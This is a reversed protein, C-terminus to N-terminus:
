ERPRCSGKESVKGGRITLEVNLDSDLVLLDADWGRAIRGKRKGMGLVTAPTLTAMTVAERLSVGALNVANKVAKDMTLTSGALWGKRRGVTYGTETVEVRDRGRRYTGPPLGTVFAADTILAVKEVGKCRVIPMLMAPHFHFGDMIVSGYLEEMCLFSGVVGPEVGLWGGEQEKRYPWDTTNGVHTVFSLGKKVSEVMCQYDAYSHSAAAVIGEGNLLRIVKGADELEPALTVMRIEGPAVKVWRRVERVDPRRLFGAPHAGRRRPSLFPGEVHIGAVVDAYESRSRRFAVVRRVAALMKDPTDTLITALMTTTGHEAFFRVIDEYKGEPSQSFGEGKGGNVQLDVYGPVAIKGSAHITTDPRKSPRIEGDAVQRIKGRDIFISGRHLRETPTIITANKLLLSSM